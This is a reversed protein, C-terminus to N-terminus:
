QFRGAFEAGIDRDAAGLPKTNRETEASRVRSVKGRPIGVLTVHSAAQDANRVIGSAARAIAERHLGAFLVDAAVFRRTINAGSLNKERDDCRHVGDIVARAPQPCDRSADM